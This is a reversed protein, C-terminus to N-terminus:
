ALENVKTSCWPKAEPDSITICGNFELGGFVFPFVCPIRSRGDSSLVRCDVGTAEEDPEEQDESAPSSGPFVFGQPEASIVHVLVLLLALVVWARLLTM